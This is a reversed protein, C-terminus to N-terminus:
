YKGWEPDDLIVDYGYVPIEILELKAEVRKVFDVHNKVIRRPM